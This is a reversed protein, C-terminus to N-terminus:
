QQMLMDVLIDRHTYTYRIYNTQNQKHINELVLDKCNEPTVSGGYQIRIKDAVEASVAEKIYARIAAQTEEAQDPTAVKGTGIAWVPEYAIVIDDWNKVKPIIAALQRKNVEDTKGSEREELLEGICFLVKLGAAQCKEVKVATDEDTEGYKSRRESHGILTYGVEMDQLHSATWEGTFAGMDNKGVNQASVQMGLAELPAKVHGLHLATPAIVVDVKDKDFGKEKWAEVLAKADALKGPNCKWNGGVIPKRPM